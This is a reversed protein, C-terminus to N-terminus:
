RKCVWARKNDCFSGGSCKLGAIYQGKPIELRGSGEESFERSWGCSATDLSLGQAKSCEIRVNDCDDGQCSLATVVKGAGCTRYNNGEESFPSSWQAQSLEFPQECKLAIDDCHGGSCQFGVVAGDCRAPNELGQEDSVAPTWYTKVQRPPAQPEPEAEVVEIKPFQDAIDFYRPDYVKDYTEVRRLISTWEADPQNFYSVFDNLTQQYKEATDVLINQSLGRASSIVRGSRSVSSLLQEAEKEIEVSTTNEVLSRYKISLATKLKDIEKTNLSETSVDYQILLYSGLDVERVFGNGYRQRFLEWNGSEIIRSAPVSFEASDLIVKDRLYVVMIALSLKNSEFSSTKEAFSEVSAELEVGFLNAKTTNKITRRFLDKLQQSNEIIAYETVQQSVGPFRIAYKSDHDLALGMLRQSDSTDIADGLYANYEPAPVASLESSEPSPPQCAGLSILSLGALSSKLIDKFGKPM